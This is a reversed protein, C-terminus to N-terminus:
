FRRPRAVAGSNNNTAGWPATTRPPVASVNDTTQTVPPQTETPVTVVPQYNTHGATAVQQRTTNVATNYGAPHVSQEVPQSAYKPEVQARVPFDGQTLYHIMEDKTKDLIITGLPSYDGFIEPVKVYIEDKYVQKSLNPVIEYTTSKDGPKGHRIIKCIIDSLPGYNDLYSKMTKVYTSAFREWIKASPTVQGTERNVEYQICKIYVKQQLKVDDVCFPCKDLPENPTRLCEIVRPKNNYTFTHVSHTDLDDVSDILFRVIAEDGDNKLSLFGVQRNGANGNTTNAATSNNNIVDDYSLKAMTKEKFIDKTIKNYCM